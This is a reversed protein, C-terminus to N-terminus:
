KSRKQNTNEILYTKNLPKTITKNEMQNQETETLLTTRNQTNPSSLTFEKSLNKPNLQKKNPNKHPSITTIEERPPNSLPIQKLINQHKELKHETMPKPNTSNSFLKLLIPKIEQIFKPWDQPGLQLLKSILEQYNKKKKLERIKPQNPFLNKEMYGEVIKRAEQYPINRTHKITLIKKRKELSPMIQYLISPRWRLQCMQQQSQLRHHYLKTIEGCKGCIYHTWQMCKWSPWIKPM